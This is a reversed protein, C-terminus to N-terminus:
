LRDLELMLLELDSVAYGEIGLAILGRFLARERCGEAAKRRLLALLNQKLGHIEAPEEGWRSLDHANNRGCPSACAYCDPIMARKTEDIRRLLADPDAAEACLVEAAVDAVAATILHANGETARALGILEGLLRDRAAGTM